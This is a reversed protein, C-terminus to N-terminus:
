CITGQLHKFKYAANCASSAFVRDPFLTVINKTELKALYQGIKLIRDGVSKATFKCYSLLLIDWWM